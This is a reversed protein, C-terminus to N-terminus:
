GSNSAWPPADRGLWMPAGAKRRMLYTLVEWRGSAFRTYPAIPQREAPDARWLAAGLQADFHWLTEAIEFGLAAYTRHAPTAFLNTTLVFDRGPYKAECWEMLAALMRRALGRGEHEPPVHVSWLYLGAADQTNVSVRGVAAGDEIAVLHRHAGPTRAWALASEARGRDRLHGLDFPHFPFGREGWRAMQKVLASDWARLELGYGRIVEPYGPPAPEVRHTRLRAM